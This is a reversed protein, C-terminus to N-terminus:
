AASHCKFELSMLFYNVILTPQATANEAMCFVYNLTQVSFGARSIDTASLRLLHTNAVHRLTNRLEM